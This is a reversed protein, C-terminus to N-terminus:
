PDQSWRYRCTRGCEKGGRREESRTSKGKGKGPHVMLLGKEITKTALMRDRVEKRKKAKENARANIAAETLGPEKIKMRRDDQRAIRRRYQRAAAVSRFLTTYPFLTDTRTSRPPLRIM